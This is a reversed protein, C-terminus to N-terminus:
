NLGASGHRTATRLRFLEAELSMAHSAIRNASANAEDRERMMRDRQRAVDRLVHDNPTLANGREWGLRYCLYGYGVSVAFRALWLGAELLWATM